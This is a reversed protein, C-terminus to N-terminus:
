HADDSGKNNLDIDRQLALDTSDYAKLGDTLALNSAESKKNQRSLDLVQARISFYKDIANHYTEYIHREEDSSILKEYAKEDKTLERVHEEMDAESKDMSSKDTSLIHRLELRRVDAVDSAMEGLIRVSPLWNTAIDVTSGNLKSMRSLSVIGLAVMLVLVMGFGVALKKGIKLNQFWKM